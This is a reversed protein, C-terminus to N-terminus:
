GLMISPATGANFAIYAPATTIGIGSLVGDIGISVATRLIATGIGVPKFQVGPLRRGPREIMAKEKIGSNSEM